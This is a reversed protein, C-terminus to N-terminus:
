VAALRRPGPMWPTQITPCQDEQPVIPAPRPSAWQNVRGMPAGFVACIVVTNGDHIRLSGKAPSCAWASPSASAAPSSGSIRTMVGPAGHFHIGALRQGLGSAATGSATRRGIGSSTIPTPPMPPATIAESRRKLRAATCTCFGLILGRRKSRTTTLRCSSSVPGLTNTVRVASCRAVGDRSAAAASAQRSRKAWRFRGSTATSTPPLLPRNRSSAATPPSSAPCSTAIIRRSPTPTATVGDRRVSGATVASSRAASSGSPPCTQSPVPSFGYKPMSASASVM